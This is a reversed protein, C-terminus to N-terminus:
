LPDPCLLGNEVGHRYILRYLLGLGRHFARGGRTQPNRILDDMCETKLDQKLEASRTDLFLSYAAAFLWLRGSLPCSLAMQPFKEPFYGDRAALLERIRAEVVADIEARREASMPVKVPQIQKSTM